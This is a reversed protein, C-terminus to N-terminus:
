FCHTEQVMKEYWGSAKWKQGMHEAYGLGSVIWGCLTEVKVDPRTHGVSNKTELGWVSKM